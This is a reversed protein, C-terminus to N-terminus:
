KDQRKTNNNKFSLDDTSEVLVRNWELFSLGRELKIGWGRHIGAAVGEKTNRDGGLRRPRPGVMVVLVQSGLLSANSDGSRCSVERWLLRSLLLLLLCLPM